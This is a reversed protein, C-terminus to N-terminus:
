QAGATYLATIEAQSLARNYVRFDDIGGNLDRFGGTGAGLTLATGTTTVSASSIDSDVQQVGNVYLTQYGGAHVVTILRWTSNSTITSVGSLHQGKVAMAIPQSAGNYTGIWYVAPGISTNTGRLVMYGYDSGTVSVGYAWLSVTFRDTQAPIADADAVTLFQDSGNFRYAGNARGGAGTIVTPNNTPTVTRGNGSQDALSGNLPLWVAMDRRICTGESPTTTATAASYEFAGDKGEICYTNARANFYYTLKSSTVNVDALSAPYTDIGGSVKKAEVAKVAQSLESQLASVRSRNSIGNYAVITIAALIAIVVVVILLEVITFGKKM